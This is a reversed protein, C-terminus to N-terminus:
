KDCIHCHSTQTTRGTATSGLDVVAGAALNRLADIKTVGSFGVGAFTLLAKLMKTGEAGKFENLTREETNLLVFVQEGLGRREAAVGKQKAAGAAVPM